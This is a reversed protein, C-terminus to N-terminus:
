RQADELLSLLNSSKFYDVHKCHKHSIFGMCDCTLEGSQIDLYVFYRFNDDLNLQKKTKESPKFMKLLVKGKARKLRFYKIIKQLGRM